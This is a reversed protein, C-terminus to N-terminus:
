PSAPSARSASGPDAPSLRLLVKALLVAPDEDLPALDERPPTGVPRMPSGDAHALLAGRRSREWSLRYEEGPSVAGLDLDPVVGQGRVLRRGSPLAWALNTLQLGWAGDPDMRLVQAFGKGWTPSGVVIAGVREQLAGALVEASSATRQDVLVVVPTGELGHGAIAENWEALRAGTVPDVDPGTEPLVRGDIRALWGDAIFRDAIQVAANVDGGTNGRLDLVLGGVRETVPEVLADFEAESGSRFARIHTYALGQEEDLWVSWANDPGRRWGEVVQERVPARVLDFVRAEGGRLLSLRVTSGESGVLARRARELRADLPLTSLQLVQEGSAIALLEDDQHIGSAWSPTDPLPRVVVVAEGRLELELGVGVEVGAHHAQWSAIEEPWVARTWPDLSSLAGDVFEGVVIEEPVKGQAAQVLSTLAAQAGALDTVASEPWSVEALGPWRRRAGEVASLYVLRARGAATIAAWDPPDLYERDIQALIALGSAPRVGRLAYLSDGGVEGWRVALEAQWARARWAAAHDPRHVLLEALAEYIPQAQAPPAKGAAEGLSAAFSLFATDEPWAELAAALHPLAGELDGAQVRQEVSLRLRERSDRALVERQRALAPWRAGESRATALEDGRSRGLLEMGEDIRGARLSQGVEDPGVSSCALLLTLGLM